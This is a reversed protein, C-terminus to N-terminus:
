VTVFIIQSMPNFKCVIYEFTVNFDRNNERVGQKQPPHRVPEIRVGVMIFSWSVKLGDDRFASEIIGIADFSRVFSYLALLIAACSSVLCSRKPRISIFHLFFYYYYCFM